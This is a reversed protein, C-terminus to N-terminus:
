FHFVQLCADTVNDTLKHDGESLSPHISSGGADNSLNTSTHADTILNVAAPVAVLALAPELDVTLDTRSAREQVRWEEGQQACIM